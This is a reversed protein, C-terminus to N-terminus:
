DTFVAFAWGSHLNPVEIVLANRPLEAEFTAHDLLRMRLHRRTADAALGQIAFALDYVEDDTPDALWGWLPATPSVSVVDLLVSALDELGAGTAIMTSARLRTNSAVFVVPAGPELGVLAHILRTDLVPSGTKIM